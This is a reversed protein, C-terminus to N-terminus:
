VRLVRELQAKRLTLNPNADIIERARGFYQKSREPDDTRLIEGMKMYAGSTWVDKEYNDPNDSAELTKTAEEARQLASKDGNKYQAVALHVKMDQLVATRNHEVPPNTEMVRVAEEYSSVANSINGAAEQAKGLNFLPIVTAQEDGSQRAIEVSSQASHTALVMFSPDGTQEFLHRFILFRSSQVEAMGLLDGSRQYTVTARDTFELAETFDGKERALEAQKHVIRGENIAKEPSRAEEM